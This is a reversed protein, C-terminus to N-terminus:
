TARRRHAVSGVVALGALMLAYTEPEPVPPAADVFALGRVDRYPVHGVISSSGTGLDIKILNDAGLTIGYLQNSGDFAIETLGDGGAVDAYVLTAAGTALNVSYIGGGITGAYVVGASNTSLGLPTNMGSAGIFTAAGSAPNVRYFDGNSQNMSYLATFGANFTLATIFTGSAGVLTLAGTSQNATYLNDFDRVYLAGTNPNYAAGILTKGSAPGIAATAATGPSITILQGTAADTGYFTGAHAGFSAFVLGLTLGISRGISRGILQLPRIFKM